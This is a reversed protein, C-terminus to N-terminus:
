SPRGCELDYPHGNFTPPLEAPCMVMDRPIVIGEPDAMAGCFPGCKPTHSLWVITPMSTVVLTLLAMIMFVKFTHDASWPEEPRRYAGRLMAHKMSLFMTVQALCALAPLWPCFSSGVWVFAQRYLIDIMMSASLENDFIMAPFKKFRMLVVPETVEVWLGESDVMAKCVAEVVKNPILKAMRCTVKSSVHVSPAAVLHALDEPRWSDELLDSISNMGNDLFIQAMTDCRHNFKEDHHINYSSMNLKHLYERITQQKFVRGFDEWSEGKHPLLKWWTKVLEKKRKKGALVDEMTLGVERTQIRSRLKFGDKQIQETPAEKDGRDWHNVAGWKWFRPLGHNTLYVKFFQMGSFVLADTIVLKFFIGGFNTEPCPYDKADFDSHQFYRLLSPENPGTSAAKIRLLTLMITGLQVMKIVYIRLLNAELIEIPRFHGEAKVIKKILKPMLINLVSLCLPVVPMKGVVKAIDKEFALLSSLLTIYCIIVLFTVFKGIYMKVRTSTRKAWTAHAAEFAKKEETAVVWSEMQKRIQQRMELAADVSTCMMDYSGLMSAFDRAGDSEVSLGGVATGGAGSQALDTLRMGLSRLIRWLSFSIAFLIGLLYLVDMRAPILGMWDLDERAYGDYFLSSVHDDEKGILTLAGGLAGLTDMISHDASFDRPIIVVVFWLCALQLNLILMWKMIKLLEAVGHGFLVELQVLSKHWLEFQAGTIAKKLRRIHDDGLHGAHDDYEGLMETVQVGFSLPV